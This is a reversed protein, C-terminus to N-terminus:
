MLTTVGQRHIYIHRGEHKNRHVSNQIKIRGSLWTTVPGSGSLPGGLALLRELPQPSCLLAGSRPTWWWAYRITYNTRLCYTSCLFVSAQFPSFFPWTARAHHSMGTIGASQSALAPLDESTLLKLGAQGVHYFGTEVVFVILRAHHRAGTIGAVRTVSALSNSSGPPPPQQSGLDCWQVGAQTVSRSEAEIFCLFFGVFFPRTPPSPHATKILTTQSLSCQFPTMKLLVPLLQPFSGQLNRPYFMGPLPFQWASARGPFTHWPPSCPPGQPQLLTPLHAVPSNPSPLEAPGHPWRELVEAKGRFSVLAVPPNQGPLCGVQNLVQSRILNIQSGHSVLVSAPLGTLPSSSDDLLLGPQAPGRHCCHLCRPSSLNRSLESPNASPSSARAEQGSSLLKRM